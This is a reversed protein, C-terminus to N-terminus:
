REQYAMTLYDALKQATLDTGSVIFGAKNYFEERETLKASIFDVLADGQLNNILPRDTNSNELRSALAKAPLSLYIVKGHKSMWEMNDAYCPAGGGTAIVCDEPYWGKQLIEKEEERFSQEGYRAFYDAIRVGTKQELLKDTDFFEVKMHSALKRGISSKGSGMFGILFIRM